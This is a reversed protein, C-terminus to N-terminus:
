EKTDSTTVEVDILIGKTKYYDYVPAMRCDYDSIRKLIVKETDDDRQMYEQGCAPCFRSDRGSDKELYYAKKCQWCVRRRQLKKIAVEKSIYLNIVAHIHFQWKELEHAQQINGPFGDFVIKDKKENSAIERKVIKYIFDDPMLRGQNMVSKIQEAFEKKHLIERRLIVGVSIQTYGAHVALARATNSKGSGPRGILILNM